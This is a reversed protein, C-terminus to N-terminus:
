ANPGADGLARQAVEETRTAAFGKEVFLTLAAELLEHPRAQKRRQRPGAEAPRPLTPSM